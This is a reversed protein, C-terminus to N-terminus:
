LCPRARRRCRPVPKGLSRRDRSRWGGPGEAPRALHM